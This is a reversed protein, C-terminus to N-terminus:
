RRWPASRLALGAGIPGIVFALVAGIVRVESSGCRGSDGCRMGSWDAFAQPDALMAIGVGAAAVMAVGVLFVLLM